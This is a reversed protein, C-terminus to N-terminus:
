KDGSVGEQPVQQNTSQNEVDWLQDSLTQSIQLQRLQASVTQVIQPYCVYFQRFLNLNRASLGKINTKGALSNILEDGYKARDEGKQEFHVIYFGILWNRITLHRNIASTASQQLTAHTQTINTVLVDFNM